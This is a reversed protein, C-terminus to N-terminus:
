RVRRGRFDKRAHNHGTRRNRHSLGQRLVQCADRGAHPHSRGLKPRAESIDLSVKGSNISQHRLSGPVSRIQNYKGLAGYGPIAERIPCRCQRRRESVIIGHDLQQNLAASRMMHLANDAREHPRTIM